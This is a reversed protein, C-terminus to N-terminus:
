RQDHLISDLDKRLMVSFELSGKENLHGWDTFLDKDDCIPSRKELNYNIFPIHNQKAFSDLYNLGAIKEYEEKKSEM